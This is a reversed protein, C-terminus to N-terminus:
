IGGMKKPLHQVISFIYPFKSPTGKYHMFNPYLEQFPHCMYIYIYSSYVM